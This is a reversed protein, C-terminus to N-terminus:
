RRSPSRAVQRRDEAIPDLELLDEEVQEDVRGLGHAVDWGRSAPEDHTGGDLRDLIAGPRDDGDLIGADPEGLGLREAQEVGEERRLRLAQPHAQRDAPGDDLSM